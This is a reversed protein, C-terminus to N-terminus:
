TVVSLPSDGAERPMVVDDQHVTTICHDELALYVEGTFGTLEGSIIDAPSTYAAGSQGRDINGARQM